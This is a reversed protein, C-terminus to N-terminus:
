KFFDMNHVGEDTSLNLLLRRVLGVSFNVGLLREFLYRLIDKLIAAEGVLGYLDNLLLTFEDLLLHRSM